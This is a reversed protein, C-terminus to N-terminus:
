VRGMENTSGRNTYYPFLYADAKDTRVSTFSGGNFLKESYVGDVTFSEINSVQESILIDATFVQIALEMQAKKIDKPISKTGSSPVNFSKACAGVRPYPLEQDISVRSGSLNIEKSAMYDIALVLLKERDPQTAPIAFGRINAYAKLEADTAFSNANDVITGDEIILQTGVAIVIQESNGLARSTIDTGNTSSGDLYTVTAFVKGVEATGSLDLTLETASTAVVLTPDDAVSYTESGFKVVINTADTLVVGAFVFVVKNDKDPIVLNQSM